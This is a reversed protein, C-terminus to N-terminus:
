VVGWSTWASQSLGGTEPSSFHGPTTLHHIPADGCRWRIQGPIGDSLCSPFDIQMISFPPLQCLGGLVRQIIAM